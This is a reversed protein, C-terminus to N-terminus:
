QSPADLRLALADVRAALADVRNAVAAIEDGISRAEATTTALPSEDRFYSTVSAGVREGAYGPFALLRRGADAVSQGIIPGLANAFAREVFWPLTEALGKLTAALAADGDAKVLADWRTPDALFTPVTLPSLTLRLDPVDGSSHAPEIAGSADIRLTSALPGVAIVFVRGAHAALSSRAWSERAFMRNALAAPVADPDFRM